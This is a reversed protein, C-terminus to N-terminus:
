LLGAKRLKQLLDNPHISIFNIEFLWKNKRIMEIPWDWWRLLSIIQIIEEPYRYKIVRAPNGGAISYPPINKTVVSGAGVVAGDGIEVGPLIIVGNGVWVNNGIIVDKKRDDIFITRNIKLQLAYQINLYAYSHNTTVIHIDKGIACYNGIRLMGSGTVCFKGNIRTGFGIIVKGSFSSQKGIYVKSKLSYFSFRRLILNLIKRKLRNTIILGQITM